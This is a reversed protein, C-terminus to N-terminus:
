YKELQQVQQAASEHYEEAELDAHVLVDVADVLRGLLTV